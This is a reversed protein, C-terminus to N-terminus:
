GRGELWQPLTQALRTWREGDRQMRRAFTMVSPEESLCLAEFCAMGLREAEILEGRTGESTRWGGPTCLLVGGLGAIDRLAALHGDLWVEDPAAYQFHATNLHPCYIWSFMGSRWAALAITEATVINRHIAFHDNGRFKGSIFAPVKM